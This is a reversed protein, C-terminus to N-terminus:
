MGSTQMWALQLPLGWVPSETTSAGMSGMYPDTAAIMLRYLSLCHLYNWPNPTLIGNETPLDTVQSAAQSWLFPLGNDLIIASTSISVAAALLLGLVMLNIM